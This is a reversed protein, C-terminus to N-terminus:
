WGEDSIADGEGLDPLDRGQGCDEGDSQDVRRGEWGEDGGDVFFYGLGMLDAM